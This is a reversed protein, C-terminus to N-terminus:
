DRPPRTRILTAICAVHAVVMIPGAFVPVFWQAHLHPLAGSRLAHPFAIMLDVAGVLSAAWAFARRARWGQLLAVFAVLSLVATISDGIATAIAFERPMGPSLTPVLLGLGLVRFMEPAIWVALQRDRPLARVNPAVVLLAIAAWCATFWWFQAVFIALV